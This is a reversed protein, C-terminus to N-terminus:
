LYLKIIDIYIYIHVLTFIYLFLKSCMINCVDLSECVGHTAWVSVNLIDHQRIHYSLNCFISRIRQTKQNLIWLKWPNPKLTKPNLTKPNTTQSTELCQGQTNSCTSPDPQLVGTSGPPCCVAGPRIIVRQYNLLQSNFIAMYITSKGM